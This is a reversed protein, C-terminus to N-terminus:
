LIARSRAHAARHQLRRREVRAAIMDRACLEAKGAQLLDAELRRGGAQDHVGEIRGLLDEVFGIAVIEAEGLKAGEHGM